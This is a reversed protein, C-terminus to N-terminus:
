IALPSPKKEDVKQNMLNLVHYLLELRINLGFTIYSLCNKNEEFKYIMSSIQRIKNTLAAAAAIRSTRNENFFM